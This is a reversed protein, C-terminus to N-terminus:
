KTCLWSRVQVYNHLMCASMCLCACACTCVCVCVRARVCTCVCTCVCACVCACVRVCVCVCVCACVRVCVCVCVCRVGHLNTIVIAIEKRLQREDFEHKVLEFPFREHFVRNIRAGGSLEATDIVTTGGEIRREFEDSFSQIM